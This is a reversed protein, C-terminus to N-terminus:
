VNEIDNILKKSENVNEFNIDTIKLKQVIEYLRMSFLKKSKITSMEKLYDVFNVNDQLIENENYLQSIYRFMKRADDTNHNNQLFKLYIKFDAKSINYRSNRISLYIQEMQRDQYDLIENLKSLSLEM